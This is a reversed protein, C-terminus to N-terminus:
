FPLEEEDIQTFGQQQYAPASPATAEPQPQGEDRSSLFEVTRAALELRATIEELKNRYGYAKPDGQVYVKRGKALYRACNEAQNDYATVKVWEVAERGGRRRTVAVPFTTLVRGDELVRREPDTGLNGIIQMQIM